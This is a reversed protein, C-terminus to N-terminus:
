PDQIGGDRFHRAQTGLGYLAILGYDPTDLLSTLATVTEPTPTDVRSLDHAVAARLDTGLGADGVLRVLAEKAVPTDAAALADVLLKAPAKGARILAVARTPTEPQTRLIATLASFVRNHENLRRERTANEEPTALKQERDTLLLQDNASAALALVATDFTFKGVKAADLAARDVAAVSPASLAL